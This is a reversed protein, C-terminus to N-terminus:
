RVKIGGATMMALMSRLKDDVSLIYSTNIQIQNLVNLQQTLTQLQEAATLRLGGIQGALLQTTQETAQSSAGVLSNQSSASTTNSFLSGAAAKIANMKEALEALIANYNSQIQSIDIDDLSGDSNRQAIDNYLSQIAPKIQDAEFASLIAKKLIDNLNDGFDDITSYGREFGQEISDAIADATTGTYIENLRNAVDQASEGIGSIEDHVKQLESFWAATKEDLKGETFLKELADYDADSLGALDQVTKSKKGLGLFGGSKTIHEGTVQNGAQQIKQLLANYDQQAQQQQLNLLDRQQRLQVTNLDNISAITRARERLLQNYNTEGTILSDNYASLEKAAAVRSDKAAKFFNFVTSGIALIGSVIGVGAAIKATKDDSDADHFDKLSKSAQVFGSIVNAVLSLTDSLEGNIGQLSSALGSFAGQIETAHSSFKDLTKDTKDTAELLGKLKDVGSQIDAKTQPTLGTSKDLIKNLDKVRQQLQQRTFLVINENLKKYVDSQYAESEDVGKKENDHYEKLATLRQQLDEGKYTSQLQQADKQYKDDLTKRQQNFSNTLNIIRTYNTQADSYRKDNAEKDAQVQAEGIGKLKTQSGIDPFVGVFLSAAVIGKVKTEQSKLYDIYNDFSKTQENYLEGARAIGIEKKADEYQEFIKKQDDLHKLYNEADAKYDANNRETTRDTNVRTITDEGIRSVRDNPNQKNYAAVGGPYQRNIKDYLENQEKISRLLSDYKENIKNVESEQKLLGSQIADHHLNNIEELISKQKEYLGNVKSIAEENTKAAVKEAGYTDFLKKRADAYKLDSALAERNAQDHSKSYQDDIQQRLASLDELSTTADILQKNTKNVADQLPAGITTDGLALKKLSEGYKGSIADIQTQVVQKKHDFYASESSTGYLMQDFYGQKSYDGKGFAAKLQEGMLEMKDVVGPAKNEIDILQEQLEVLKNKAAQAKALDNISQIYDQIAGKAKGALIQEDSYNKLYPGTAERLKNLATVTEEHTSKKDKLVGVLMNVQVSQSVAAKGADAEISALTKQAEAAADTTQTLSYIVVGLAAIAATIGATPLAKTIADFIGKASGQLLRQATALGAQVGTLERGALATQLMVEQQVREAAVALLVATRYSGYIVVATKLVDVIQQYNNVASQAFGLVSYALGSNAKGINNLMQDISDELNSIVGTLTHSTKEMLGGFQSGAGTLSQFAAEIQPFGVKGATVFDRVQDVNIKLVKALAEYIPIGRQAFQKIDVANAVGATKITGYLYVIDGLPASIGSAVDGLSKLTDQIDSAAFGYALLQKTGAAVETLNFPTTAAFKVVESMLQDAKQKSGLMTEFAVQLKEMEGRVRVIDQILQTGATLSVYGAIASTAKKYLNEISATQNNAENTLGRIGQVLKDRQQFFLDTTIGATFNLQGNGGFIEM